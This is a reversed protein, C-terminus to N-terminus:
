SWLVSPRQAMGLVAAIRIAPELAYPLSYIGGHVQQSLLLAAKERPAAPQVRAAGPANPNLLDHLVLLGSLARTTHPEFICVDFRSAGVFAAQFLPHALSRTKTIGAVNASVTVPQRPEAQPRIGYVAYTEAAAVKSVYQAAQYSVGQISVIARAVCADDSTLRGPVPLAGVGKWLSQWLPRRALKQDAAVADEPQVNAPMTPSVFLSITQVASPELRRVIANMAAGLRWELSAGGAYAFMGVHVPGDDALRTIAAAVERPARLVDRAGQALLLAGGRESADLRTSPEAIDVWLVTAGARLLLPTPALEAGAGLLAFRQGSLDLSGGRQEIHDIIWRAAALAAHTMHHRANLQECLEVIERRRYVRGQFEVEPVLGPARGNGQERTMEPPSLPAAMHEELLPAGSPDRYVLQQQTRDSILRAIEVREAAAARALEFRVLADGYSRKFSAADAPFAAAGFTQPFKAVAEALVHHFFSSGSHGPPLSVGDQNRADM